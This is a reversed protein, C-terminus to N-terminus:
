YVQEIRSTLQSSMMVRRMCAERWERQEWGESEREGFYEFLFLLHVFGEIVCTESVKRM